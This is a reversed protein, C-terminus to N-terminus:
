FAISEANGSICFVHTLFPTDKAFYADERNKKSMYNDQPNHESKSFCFFFLINKRINNTAMM